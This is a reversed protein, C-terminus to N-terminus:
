FPLSWWKGASAPPPPLTLQSSPTKLSWCLFSVQCKLCCFISPATRAYRTEVILHRQRFYSVKDSESYIQFSPKKKKVNYKWYHQTCIPQPLHSSKDCPCRTSQYLRYSHISNEFSKDITSTYKRMERTHRTKKTTSYLFTPPLINDGAKNGALMGSFTRTPAWGPM